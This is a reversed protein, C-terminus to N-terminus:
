GKAMRPKSRRSRKRPGASRREFVDPPDSNTFKPESLLTSLHQFLDPCRPPLKTFKVNVNNIYNNLVMSAKVKLIPKTNNKQRLGHFTHRM